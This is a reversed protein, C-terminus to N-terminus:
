FLIFSQPVIPTDREDDSNYNRAGEKIITQVMVRINDVAPDSREDDGSKKGFPIQRTKKQNSLRAWGSYRSPNGNGQVYDDLRVGLWCNAKASDETIPIKKKECQFVIEKRLEAALRGQGWGQSALLSDASDPLSPKEVFLLSHSNMSPDDKTLKEPRAQVAACGCLWALSFAALGAVM